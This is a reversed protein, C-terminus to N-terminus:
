STPMMISVLAEHAREDDPIADHNQLAAFDNARDVERRVLARRAGEDFPRERGALMRSYEVLYEIVSATDSWDV